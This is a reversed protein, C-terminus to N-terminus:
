IRRLVRTALEHRRLAYTQKSPTREATRAILPTAYTLERLAEPSDIESLALVTYWFPFRQWEGKGNRMSRLHALGRTLREEQRDLGGSLLNRWLGVTCKGCCFTGPNTNRPDLAARELCQMLGDNARGLAASVERDRVPLLRLVRSAEEGLIHRASASTIREGTFLVIGARREHPFAAFTDAYAGPQGQRTAIWRAAAVREGAPVPRRDFIAANLADVTRAVSKPDVLPPAPM